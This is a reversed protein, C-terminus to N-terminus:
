LRSHERQMLRADGEISPSECILVGKANFDKLAKMLGKWHMDSDELNLHNREGKESYAIGSTHIHMNAIGENGLAKEVKGLIESFEDYSNLKGASRAHLHSFDICPMVHDIEQSLRLIEDLSGFQTAKGTTEPRVWIYIGENKLKDVIGKLQEKIVAYVKEPDMKMYFGAHFTVSWAGCLSAIRASDVIRGISAHLKAKEASNLNIFYPAHCTLVVDNEKATKKVESAREKTINISRVFELEFADLGLKRVHRIGNATGPEPTSLPLGATGFRLKDM